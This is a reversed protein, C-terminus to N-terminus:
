GFVGLYPLYLIKQQDDSTVLPTGVGQKQEEQHQNQILRRVPISAATTLATKGFQQTCLVSVDELRKIREIASQTDKFLSQQVARPVLRYVAVYTARYTESVRLLVGLYDQVLAIIEQATDVVGDPRIEFSRSGKMPMKVGIVISRASLKEKRMKSAVIEANRAFESLLVEKEDTAPSFARIKSISQPSESVLQLPRVSVGRLEQYLEQTPKHFHDEIWGPPRAVLDGITYIKKQHMKPESKWGIGPVRSIPLAGLVTDQNDRTVVCIGRPKNISSAIKAITKTEGVGISVTLGLKTCLEAQLQEALTHADELSRVQDSMDAYCEDISTSEVQNSYTRVINKMRQSFLSYKRYDSSVLLVQDGFRKRIEKGSMGRSVGIKKAEYSFATAVGREKGVAIPQGRLHMATSQECSAFFADGDIHFIIRSSLM